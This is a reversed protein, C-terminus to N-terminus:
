KKCEHDKEEEDFKYIIPIHNVKCEKCYISMAIESANVVGRLFDEDTYWFTPRNLIRGYRDILFVNIGLKM